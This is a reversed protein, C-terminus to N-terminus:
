NRSASQRFLANPHSKYSNLFVPHDHSSQFFLEIGLLQDRAKYKEVEM